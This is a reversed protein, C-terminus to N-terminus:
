LSLCCCIPTQCCQHQNCVMIVPARLDVLCLNFDSKNSYFFFFILLRIIECETGRNFFLLTFYTIHYLWLWDSSASAVECPFDRLLLAHYWNIVFSMTICLFRHLIFVTWIDSVGASQISLYIFLYLDLLFVATLQVDTCWVPFVKKNRKLAACNCASYFLFFLRLYGWQVLRRSCCRNCWWLLPWDPPTTPLHDTICESPGCCSVDWSWRINTLHFFHVNPSIAEFSGRGCAVPFM